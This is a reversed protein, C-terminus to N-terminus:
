AESVRNRSGQLATAEMLQLKVAAVQGQVELRWFHTYTVQDRYETRAVGALIGTHLRLCADRGQGKKGEGPSQGAM